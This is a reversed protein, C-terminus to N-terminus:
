PIKYYSEPWSNALLKMVSTKLDSIALLAIIWSKNWCKWSDNLMKIDQKGQSCGVNMEHTLLVTVRAM